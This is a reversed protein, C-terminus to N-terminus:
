KLYLQPLELLHAFKMGSCDQDLNKKGARIEPFRSLLHSVSVYVPFTFQFSSVGPKCITPHTSSKSKKRLLFRFGCGVKYSFM